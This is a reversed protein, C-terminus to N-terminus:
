ERWLNRAVDRGDLDLVVLGDSNTVDQEPDVIPVVSCPKRLCHGIDLSGQSAEGIDICVGLKLM